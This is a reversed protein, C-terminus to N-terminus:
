MNCESIRLVKGSATSYSGAVCVMCSFSGTYFVCIFIEFGMSINRKEDHDICDDCAWRKYRRMGAEEEIMEAM